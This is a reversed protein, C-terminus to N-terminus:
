MFKPDLSSSRGAGFVEPNTYKLSIEFGGRYRTSRNLSSLNIDYSIQLQYEGLQYGLSAILADNWRYHGGFLVATESVNGTYRSSETIFLRVMSGATIEKQPGQLVVLYSPMISLRSNPIGINSNGHAIIKPYLKEITGFDLVSRNVHSFSFGVNVIFMDHSALNSEGKAYNFTCGTSVDFFSVGSNLNTEGTPLASNFGGNVYQSSTLANTYDISYQMYSPQIGVTMTLDPTLALISSVTLNTQSLGLGLDGAKDNFFNLGIGLYNNPWKYKLLQSEISFSYTKYASQISSWQNRYNSHARIDGNFAGVNAPNITLPSNYFQSFHVDQGQALFSMLFYFIIVTKRM